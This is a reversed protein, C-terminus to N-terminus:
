SALQGQLYEYSKRLSVFPDGACEDQEVILWQSGSRGAAKLIRPWDLNGHGVEGFFPKNETTFVYDKLHLLPVRGPLKEIWAAPDGGGYQVWYTDIEAKLHSPNTSEYLYDLVTSKGFRVFEIAHNHYSLTHGNKALTAGAADLRKALDRIVEESGFDIGAPYPYATQTAGITQLRESVAGPNNLILDGSEHTACVTLGADDLAKKAEPYPVGVGSIQVARYGIARVKALATVFDPLTKCFDRLTYLQVAVQSIKLASM